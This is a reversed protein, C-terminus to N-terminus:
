NQKIRNNMWLRLYGCCVALIDAGIVVISVTVIVLGNFTIFFFIANKWLKFVTSVIDRQTHSNMIWRLLLFFSSFDNSFDRAEFNIYNLVHAWKISESWAFVSVIHACLISSCYLIKKQFFQRMRWWKGDWQFPPFCFFFFLFFDEWWCHLRYVFRFTCFVCVCKALFFFVLFFISSFYKLEWVENKARFNNFDM